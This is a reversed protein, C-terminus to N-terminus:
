SKLFFVDPSFMQLVLKVNLIAASLLSEASGSIEVRFILKDCTQSCLNLRILSRSTIPKYEIIQNISQRRTVAEPVWSSLEDTWPKRMARQNGGFTGCTTQNICFNGRPTYLNTHSICHLSGSWSSGSVASSHITEIFHDKKM